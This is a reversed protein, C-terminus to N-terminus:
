AAVAAKRGPKGRAQPATVAGATPREQGNQPVVDRQCTGCVTANVSLLKAGCHPCNPTNRMTHLWDREENQRRAAAKFSAHIHLPNHFQGDVKDGAAILQEDSGRLLEFAHDLEQESPEDFESVFVGNFGRVTQTTVPVTPDAESGAVIEGTVTSGIGWLYNNCDGALDEAIDMASIEWEKFSEKTGATGRAAHIKMSVYREGPKCGRITYNGYTRDIVFPLGQTIRVLTATKESLKMPERVPSVIQQSGIRM